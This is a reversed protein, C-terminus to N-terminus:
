LYDARSMLGTVPEGRLFHKVNEAAKAAAGPLIGAVMGSNHPSGLVNPLDFFPYETTFPKGGRPEHWWADIAAYFQPQAVLHEYLAQEDIIAGRAVNVIIATPKMLALERAGLLNRTKNTLPLSVLLVDAATLVEDLDALTGIYDVDESTKGSSNVAHIRAGFARMLRATALGIGGFGLIACVAGDLTLLPESQNFEGRALEAHHQPLRKILALTMAMVQEAMPKAYAGVNGALPVSEPITRFDVSDAGASLLQIFRLDPAKELAGDALERPLNWGILADARALFAQRETEPVQSLFSVSAEESLVDTNIRAYEEDVPYSVAVLRDRPM